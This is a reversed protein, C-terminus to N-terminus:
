KWVVNCGRNLSLIFLFHLCIMYVKNNKLLNKKKEWNPAFYKKSPDPQLSGHVRQCSPRRYYFLGKLPITQGGAGGQLWYILWSPSSSHNIPFQAGTPLAQLYHAAQVTSAACSYPSLWWPSPVASPIQTLPHHTASNSQRVKSQFATHTQSLLRHGVVPKISLSCHTAPCTTVQKSKSNPSKRSFYDHETNRYCKTKFLEPLAVQYKQPTILYCM